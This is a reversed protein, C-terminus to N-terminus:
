QKHNKNKPSDEITFKHGFTKNSTDLIDNQNDTTELVNLIAPRPTNVAYQLIENDDFSLKSTNWIDNKNNATEFVNVTAPLKESDIICMSKKKIVPEVAYQLTEKDDIIIANNNKEADNCVANSISTHCNHKRMDTYESDHATPFYVNQTPIDKYANSFTKCFFRSVRSLAQFDKFLHLIDVCDIKSPNYNSNHLIKAIKNYLANYEKKKVEDLKTINNGGGHAYDGVFRCGNKILVNICENDDVNYSKKIKNKSNYEIPFLENTDNYKIYAYNSNDHLEVASCPLALYFGFNDESSDTLLSSHAYKSSLVDNYQKRNIEHAIIEENGDAFYAYTRAFDTHIRQQTNGGILMSVDDISEHSNDVLGHDVLLNNIMKHIM